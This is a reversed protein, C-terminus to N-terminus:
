IIVKFKQLPNKETEKEHTIHGLEKEKYKIKGM